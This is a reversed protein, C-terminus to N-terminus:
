RMVGTGNSGNAGNNPVVRSSSTLGRVRIYLGPLDNEKLVLLATDERCTGDPQVTAVTVWGNLAQPITGDQEAVVTATVNEFAYDVVSASGSASDSAIAQEFNADDPARRIRTGDDRIAVRYPKGEEMARARAVALEGRITDAAARQRTDGRFSSLSPILVAALLLMLTIVVILEFLTFGHRPRATVAKRPKVNFRAVIFGPVWVRRSDNM